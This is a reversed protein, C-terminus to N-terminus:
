STLRLIQGGPNNVVLTGTVDDVSVGGRLDGPQLGLTSAHLLGVIGPAGSAIGARVDAAGPYPGGDCIQDLTMSCVEDLTM